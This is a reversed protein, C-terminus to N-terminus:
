ELYAAIIRTYFDKTYSHKQKRPMTLKHKGKYFDAVSNELAATGNEVGVLLPPDNEEEKITKRIAMRTFSYYTKM